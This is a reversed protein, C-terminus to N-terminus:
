LHKGQHSQENSHLHRITKPRLRYFNPHKPSDLRKRISIGPYAIQAENISSYKINECIVPCQNAKLMKDKAELLYKATDPRKRGYMGNKSGFQDRNKIALKYNPSHSTDGGDGGKTMNYKPNLQKIWLIEKNNLEKLNKATDICEIIFNDKGYKRIARHLYAQSKKHISNYKHHYFRTEITDKTKGIYFESNITNTIQYIYM